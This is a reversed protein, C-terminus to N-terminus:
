TTIFDEFSIPVAGKPLATVTKVETVYFRGVELMGALPLGYKQLHESINEDSGHKYLRLFIKVKQLPPVNCIMWVKVCRGYAPKTNSNQPLPTDKVDVFEWQSEFAPGVLYKVIKAAVVKASDGEGITSDDLHKLPETTDLEARSYLNVNDQFHRIAANSECEDIIITEIKPRLICKIDVMNGDGLHNIITDSM